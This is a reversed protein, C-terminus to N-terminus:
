QLWRRMRRSQRTSAPRATRSTLTNMHRGAVFTTAAAVMVIFWLAWTMAYEVLEPAAIVTAAALATYFIAAGIAFLQTLTALSRGTAHEHRTRTHTQPQAL